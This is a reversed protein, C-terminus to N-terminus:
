FNLKKSKSLEAGKKGKRLRENFMRVYHFIRINSYLRLFADVVNEHACKEFLPQCKSLVNHTDYFSQILTARPHVPLTCGTSKQFHAEYLLAVERIIPCVHTLCNEKYEKYASFSGDDRFEPASLSGVCLECLHFKRMGKVLSRVVCGSIYLCVDNQIEDFHFREVPLCASDVNLSVVNSKNPVVVNSEVKSECESLPTEFKSFLSDTEGDDMCNRGESISSDLLDTTSFACALCRIANVYGTLTPHDNFGNRGRIRCHMNEVHDQNCKRLCLFDMIKTEILDICLQKMSSLCLSWGKHFPMSKKGRGKPIFSWSKVFDIFHDFIKLQEKFRTQTIAKKYTPAFVSNSDVFDWMNNVNEMFEATELADDPLLKAQVCKKMASAGTHSFMQVALIVKMKKGRPLTFHASSWKPCLKIANGSDIEFLKELHEWKAIKEKGDSEFKIDKTQMNNRLNKILHPPDPIIYSKTDNHLIYPKENTVDKSQIWKWQSSEQDMVIVDVTLGVSEVAQLADNIICDLLKSEVSHKTVYYGIIQKWKLTLGRVMLIICQDAVKSSQGHKGHDVHGIVLDVEKKYELAPKISMGDLSLTVHKEHDKLMGVRIQLMDLLKPCLGVGNLVDSYQRRLTSPSPLVFGSNRFIAYTSSSRFFLALCLELVKRHKKWILRQQKRMMINLLGAPVPPLKSLMEETMSDERLKENSIADQLMAKTDKLRNKLRQTHQHEVKYKQQLIKVTKRLKDAEASAQDLKSQLFECSSCTHSEMPTVNASEVFVTDNDISDTPLRSPKLKKKPIVSIRPTPLKRKSGLPPPPNPCSVITPIASPLLRSGHIDNPCMYANPEFHKSCIKKARINQITLDARRTNTIWKLCRYSFCRPNLDLQTLGGTAM